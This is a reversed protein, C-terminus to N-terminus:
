PFGMGQPIGNAQSYSYPKKHDHFPFPFQMGPTYFFEWDCQIRYLKSYFRSGYESSFRHQPKEALLYTNNLVSFQRNVFLYFSFIFRYLRTIYARTIGIYVNEAM